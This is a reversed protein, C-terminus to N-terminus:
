LEALDGADLVRGKKLRREGTSVAHALVAGLAQTIRLRGFIV